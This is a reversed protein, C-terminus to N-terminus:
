AARSARRRAADGRVRQRIAPDELHYPIANGGKNIDIAWIDAMKEGPRGAKLARITTRGTGPSSGCRGRAPASISTSGTARWRRRRCSASRSTTRGCSRTPRATRGRRRHRARGALHLHLGQGRRLDAGRDFPAQAGQCLPRDRAPRRVSLLPQRGHAARRPPLRALPPQRAAPRLQHRRPHPQHAAHRARAGSRARHRREAQLFRRRRLLARHFQAPLQLHLESQRDPEDREAGLHRVAAAGAVSAANVFRHFANLPITFLSGRQWEFSHRKTQGEQWVETSGRGEVVLVVKEYLHREANLAGAGPIEVVYMGWLGETGYLQIYSGRGGLRAWPQM